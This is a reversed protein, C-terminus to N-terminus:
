ILQIFLRFWGVLGWSSRMGKRESSLFEGTEVEQNRRQTIPSVWGTRM